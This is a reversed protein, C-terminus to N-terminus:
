RINRVDGMTTNRVDIESRRKRAAVNEETEFSAASVEPVSGDGDGTLSELSLCQYWYRVVADVVINFIM